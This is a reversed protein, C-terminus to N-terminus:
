LSFRKNILAQFRYKQVNWYQINRHHLQSETRPADVNEIAKIFPM